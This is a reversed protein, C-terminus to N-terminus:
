ELASDGGFLRTMLHSSLSTDHIQILDNQTIQLLYCLEEAEIVSKKIHKLISINGLPSHQMTASILTEINKSTRASSSKVQVYIHRLKKECTCESDLSQPETPILNCCFKVKGCALLALLRM